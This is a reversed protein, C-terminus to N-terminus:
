WAARWPASSARASSAGSRPSASSRNRKVEPALMGTLVARIDDIAEYIISYYRVDVGHDKIATRAAADGRVNFAIIRAKSAAALTM